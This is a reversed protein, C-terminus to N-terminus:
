QESIGWLMEKLVQEKTTTDYKVMFLTNYHLAISM